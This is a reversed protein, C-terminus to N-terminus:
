LRTTQWNVVIQEPLLAMNWIKFARRMQFPYNPINEKQRDVHM